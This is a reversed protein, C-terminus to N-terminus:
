QWPCYAVCQYALDGELTTVEQWMLECGDETLGDCYPLPASIYAYPYYSTSGIM